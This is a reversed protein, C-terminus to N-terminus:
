VLRVKPNVEFIESPRGGFSNAAPRIERLYDFEVLSGVAQRAADLTGLYTWGSRYVERLTFRDPLARSRIKVLLARAAAHDVKAVSAYARRAHTELYEAWALAQLVADGSIPGGEVDALHLVLALAPVLKSYKALHSVLAPHEDSSRLSRQHQEWWDFFVEQGADDFRLFPAGDGLEGIAAGDLQNLREFVAFAQDKATSDPWRDVNRWEGTVDPWVLLFFRSLLGDDGANAIAEHLYDGIVAPQISGLLSLCCAEVRRNLGRGIRDFVHPEKGSWASLYFARAGENGERELSRLLGILEDRYALVGNPNAILIEGLAEVSTDNVIYRRATPEDEEEQMGLDSEDISKGARASKKANERAAEGKIKALERRTAWASREREFEERARAELRHLPQMVAQLAPTKLVGPRGVICGWLNAFEHWDDYRKARVAIKRGLVSALCIIAGAAAFDPPCQVREAIDEIWPRLTRPLLEFAFAQVPPLGDPLPVPDPWSEAPDRLPANPQAAAAPAAEPPRVVAAITKILRAHIEDRAPHNELSDLQNWERLEPQAALWDCVDGGEPLEPLRVIQVRPAPSLERLCECANEAARRGPEDNDPLVIVHRIGALASWEARRVAGAGMIWTVAQFGLSALAAGVKQGEPVLITKARDKVTELGFLSRRGHKM